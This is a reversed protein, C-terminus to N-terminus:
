CNGGTVWTGRRGRGGQVAVGVDPPNDYRAAFVVDIDVAKGNQAIGIRKVQFIWGKNEKRPRGRKKAINPKSECEVFVNRIISCGSRLRSTIVRFRFITLWLPYRCEAIPM